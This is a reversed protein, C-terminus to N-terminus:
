HNAEDCEFSPGQEHNRFRDPLGGGDSRLSRDQEALAAFKCEDDESGPKRDAHQVWSDTLEHKHHNDQRHKEGRGKGGGVTQKASKKSFRSFPM